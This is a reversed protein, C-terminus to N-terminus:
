SRPGGARRPAKDQRRRQGGGRLRAVPARAFRGFARSRATGARDDPRRAPEVDGTDDRSFYRQGARRAEDSAAHSLAPALLNVMIPESRHASRPHDGYPPTTWM